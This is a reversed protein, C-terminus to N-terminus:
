PRSAGASSLRAAASSSASSLVSRRRRFACRRSSGGSGRSLVQGSSVLPSRRNRHQRSRKAVGPSSSVPSASASYPLRVPNPFRGFGCAILPPPSPSGPSGTPCPRHTGRNRHAASLTCNPAAHQPDPASEAAPRVGSRIAPLWVPRKWAPRACRSGPILGRRRLVSRQLSPKFRRTHEEAGSLQVISPTLTPPVNFKMPGRPVSESLSRGWGEGFRRHPIYGNARGSKRAISRL